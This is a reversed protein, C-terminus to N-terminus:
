HRREVKQLYQVSIGDIALSIDNYGLGDLSNHWLIAGTQADICFLHGASGAFVENGRVLVAVDQSSTASLLGGTSLKTQWVIAGTAPDIAAVSGNTGLILPTM